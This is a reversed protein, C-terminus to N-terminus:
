GRQLRKLLQIQGAHYLDHAAIGILLDFAKNKSGQVTRDLDNPGLTLIAERMRRHMEDLLKSASKWSDPGPESPREFWDSGEIPFGGRPENLIRRRVAYKWYATHIVLEEINHREPSPRWVAEEPTVRRISGRLNTGHWSKRNYAQDISEILVDIASRGM